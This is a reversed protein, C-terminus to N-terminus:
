LLLITGQNDDTVYAMAIRGKATLTIGTIRISVRVPLNLHISYLFEGEKTYISVFCHQVKDKLIIYFTVIIIHEGASYFKQDFGVSTEPPTHKAVKSWKYLLVGHVNFAQVYEEGLMLVRGDNDSTIDLTTPLDGEMDFNCVFAGNNEYVDLGNNKGDSSWIANAVFVRKSSEEVTLAFGRFRDRLYFCQRQCNDKDLVCVGSRIFDDFGDRRKNLLDTLVYISDDQDTAVDKVEWVHTSKYTTCCFLSLSYLFRGNSDFVKINPSGGSNDGIIFEEKSNTTIGGVKTLKHEEAGKQGFTQAQFKYDVDQAGLIRCVRADRLPEFTETGTDIYPWMFVAEKISSDVMQTVEYIVHNMNCVATVIKKREDKNFWSKFGATLEVTISKQVAPLAHLEELCVRCAPLSNVPNDVKELITAMVRIVMALIRDSTDLAENGFAETAKRRAEKFRGKADSLLERTIEDLDDLRLNKLSEALSVTKIGTASSELSVDLNKDAAATVKATIAFKKDHKAKEFVEYLIVIGEKFFSVSALIDKRALGDLKSKIDDIERVILNRFKQDTVEGERLKAAAKDRGKNVLLGLTAKLVATLVSSM